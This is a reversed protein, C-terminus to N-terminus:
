SSCPRAWPRRWPLRARASIPTGLGPPLVLSPAVDIGGQSPRSRRWRRRRCPGLPPLPQPLLCRRRLALPASRASRLSGFGSVAMHLHRVLTELTTRKLEAALQSSHAPAGSAASPSSNTTQQQCARAAVGGCKMGGCVPGDLSRCGQSAKGCALRQECGSSAGLTHPVRRLHGLLRRGSAAPRRSRTSAPPVTKCGHCRLASVAGREEEAWNHNRCGAQAPFTPQILPWKPPTGSPRRHRRSSGPPRLAGGAGCCSFAEDARRLIAVM